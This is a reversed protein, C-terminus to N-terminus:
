KYNIIFVLDDNDLECSVSNIHDKETSVRNCFDIFQTYNKASINDLIDFNIMNTIEDVALDHFIGIRSTDSLGCSQSESTM